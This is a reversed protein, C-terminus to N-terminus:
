ELRREPAGAGHAALLWTAAGARMVVVDDRFDRDGPLVDEMERAVDLVCREAHLLYIVAAQGGNAPVRVEIEVGKM